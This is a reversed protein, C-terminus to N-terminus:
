HLVISRRLHIKLVEKLVPAVLALSGPFCVYWLPYEISQCFTLQGREDDIGHYKSTGEEANLHLVHLSGTSM